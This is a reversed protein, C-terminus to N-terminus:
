RAATAVGAAAAVSDGLVSQLLDACWQLLATDRLPQGGIRATKPVPVLATGVAPKVVTGPYLRKLRMEQSEKLQLPAFRV